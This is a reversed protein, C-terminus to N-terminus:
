YRRGRKQELVVDLGMSLALHHYYRTGTPPVGLNDAAGTVREFGAVVDRGELRFQYGSGLALTVGGGFVFSAALRRPNDDGIVQYVEGLADPGSVDITSQDFAVVGFGARLYPSLPARPTVRFLASALFSVAGTTNSTGHINQCVQTTKQTGSAYVVACADQLPLGLYAMEGHLGFTPVPFYSVAAGINISSSVDRALRLTDYSSCSPSGAPVLCVPQRGIAWLSGGTVVGGFLTLVLNPESGRQAAAPQSPTTELLAVLLCVAHPRM